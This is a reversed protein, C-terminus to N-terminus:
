KQCRGLLITTLRRGMSELHERLALQARQSDRAEVGKLIEDHQEFVNEYGWDVSAKQEMWRRMPQRLESALRILITNHSAKALATHFALDAQILKKSGWKATRLRENHYRMEAINQETGKEVALRVISQELEVRAEVLERVKDPGMTSIVWGLSKSLAEDLSPSVVTGRGHDVTLLGILSLAGIAERVSSRGVHFRKMLEPEPPLRDSPKFKGEAIMSVLKEVIQDTLRRKQVKIASSKM